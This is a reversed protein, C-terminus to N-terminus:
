VPSRLLCLFYFVNGENGSNLGACLNIKGDERYVGGGLWGHLYIACEYKINGLTKCSNAGFLLVTYIVSSLM